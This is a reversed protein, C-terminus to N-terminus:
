ASALIGDSYNSIESETDKPIIIDFIEDLVKTQTLDAIAYEFWKTGPEVLGMVNKAEKGCVGLGIVNPNFSMNKAENDILVVTEDKSVYKDLYSIKDLPFCLVMETDSDEFLEKKESRITSNYVAIVQDFDKLVGSGKLSQCLLSPSAGATLISLSFGRKKLTKVLEQMEEPELDSLTGGWDMFIRKVKAQKEELVLYKDRNILLESLLDNLITKDKSSKIKPYMELVSLPKAKKTGMISQPSLAFTVNASSFLLIICFFLVQFHLFRM